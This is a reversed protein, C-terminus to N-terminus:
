ASKPTSTSATPKPIAKVFRNLIIPMWALLVLFCVLMLSLRPSNLTDPMALGITVTLATMALYGWCAIALGPRKLSWALDILFLLWLVTGSLVLTVVAAVAWTDWYSSDILYRRVVVFTVSSFRSEMASQLISAPFVLVEMAVPHFRPAFPAPSLIAHLCCAVTAMFWLSHCCLSYNLKRISIHNSPALRCYCVGIFMALIAFLTGCGATGIFIYYAYFVFTLGRRVYKWEDPDDMSANQSVIPTPAEHVKPPSLKACPHKDLEHEPADMIQKDQKTSNRFGM